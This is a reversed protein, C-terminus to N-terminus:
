HHDNCRNADPAQLGDFYHSFGHNLVVHVLDAQDILPFADDIGIRYSSRGSCLGIILFVLLEKHDCAGGGAFGPNRQLFLKFRQQYARLALSNERGDCFLAADVM